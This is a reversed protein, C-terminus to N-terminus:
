KMDFYRRIALWCERKRDPDATVTHLAHCRLTEIENLKGTGYFLIEKEPAEWKDTWVILKKPMFDLIIDTLRTASLVKAQNVIAYDAATLPNGQWIVATMIKELVAFAKSPIEPMDYDFVNLIGMNHSGHYEFKKVEKESPVYIGQGFLGSIELPNEVFM